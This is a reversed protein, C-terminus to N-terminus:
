IEVIVMQAANSPWIVTVCHETTIMVRDTHRNGELQKSRQQSAATSVEGVQVQGLVGERVPPHESGTHFRQFPKKQQKRKKKQSLWFFRQLFDMSTAGPLALM